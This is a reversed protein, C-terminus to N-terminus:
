INMKCQYQLKIFERVLYVCLLSVVEMQMAIYYLDILIILDLKKIFSNHLLDLYFIKM